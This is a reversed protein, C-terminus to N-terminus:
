AAALQQQQASTTVVTQGGQLNVQFNEVVSLYTVQVDAVQIGQVVQSNPNNTDGLVVQYPQTGQANGILPQNGAAANALLGEISAKADAREDPDQLRGVFNGIGGQITGALFITLRTYADSHRSADSSTNRGLQAGFYTGGPCPTAIVDVCGAALQGLEGSSYPAGARSRQTAIIGLITKNLAPDRPSLNALRGAMFGQPSSLRLPLGSNQDNWYCWDGVLYKIGFFDMAASTRVAVAQAVSQGSPGTAIMYAGESASFSMQGALTTGADADALVVLAVQTGRLAYLGTRTIGDVGQLMSETVGAAGDTGGALTYTGLTPAATSAGATLVILDSQARVNNIGGNVAAALAVWFANGTGAINDFVEPARGTRAITARYTGLASGTSLTLTDGNAGSGTFRSTATAGTSYTFTFTAASGGGSTSSQPIAGATATTPQSQITATTIAGNAGIASVALVAGNALTVTDGVAYGTGAATVVETATMIPAAAALDTGDTVRVGLFNNALNLIATAAQTGMDYKRAVYNGFTRAFDKLASFAQPSGIPGWAASGVIGILNTSVGNLNTVGPPLVNVSAGPVTQALPSATGLLNVTTPM